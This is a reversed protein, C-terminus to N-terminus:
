EFSDNSGHNDITMGDKADLSLRNDKLDRLAIAPLKEATVILSNRNFIVRDHGLRSICGWAWVAATADATLAITIAFFAICGLLSKKSYLRAISMAQGRRARAIRDRSRIKCQYPPCCNLNM